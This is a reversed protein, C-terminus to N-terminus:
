RSDVQTPADAGASLEAGGLVVDPFLPEGGRSRVADVLAVVRRTPVEDGPVVLVREHESDLQRLRHLGAQLGGLDMSGGRPPLHEESWTVDGQSATVDRTRLASRLRITHEQLHVEIAEVQGPPLPPLEGESAALRLDLGTLKQISTTLLLFPLLLFLLGVVSLLGPRLDPASSSRRPRLRRLQSV